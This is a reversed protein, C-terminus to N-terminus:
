QVRRYIQFKYAEGAKRYGDFQEFDVPLINYVGETYLSISYAVTRQESVYLVGALDLDKDFSKYHGLIDDYYNENKLQEASWHYAFIVEYMDKGDLAELLDGMCKIEPALRYNNEGIVLTEPFMPKEARKKTKRTKKPKETEVPTEEEVPTDVPTEVPEESPTEVPTEEVKEKKHLKKKVSNEAKPEAPTETKEEKVPEVAEDGLLTLVEKVLDTLEKRTVKSDDEKSAKATYIIRDYLNHDKEEVLKYNANLIDKLEKKTTKSTIKKMTKREREKVKHPKYHPDKSKDITYCPHIHIDVCKKM